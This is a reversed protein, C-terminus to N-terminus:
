ECDPNKGPINAILNGDSKDVKYINAKTPKQIRRTFSIVGTQQCDAVNKLHCSIM